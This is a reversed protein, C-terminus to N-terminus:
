RSGSSPRVNRFCKDTNGRVTLFNVATSSSEQLSGSYHVLSRITAPQAVIIKANVPTDKRTAPFNRKFDCAVICTVFLIVLCVSFLRKM